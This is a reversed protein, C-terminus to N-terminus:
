REEELRGVSLHVIPYSPLEVVPNVLASVSQLAM